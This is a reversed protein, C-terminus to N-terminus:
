ATVRAKEDDSYFSLLDNKAEDFPIGAFLAARLKQAFRTGHVKAIKNRKLRERVSFFFTRSEELLQQDVAVKSAEWKASKKRGKVGPMNFLNHEFSEDYDLFIPYFRDLTSGDLVSGTYLDDGGNCGTNGDALIISDAHRRIMPQDIRQPIVIVRNALLSNALMLTNADARDIENL